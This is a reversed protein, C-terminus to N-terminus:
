SSPNLKLLNRLPSIIHLGEAAESIQKWMEFIRVYVWDEINRCVCHRHMICEPEYANQYTNTWSLGSHDFSISMKYYFLTYICQRNWIVFGHKTSKAATYHKFASVTQHWSCATYPLGWPKTALEPWWLLSMLQLSNSHTGSGDAGMFSM